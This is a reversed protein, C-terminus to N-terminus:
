HTHLSDPDTSKQYGASWPRTRSAPLKPNIRAPKFTVYAMPAILPFEFGWLALEALDSTMHHKNASTSLLHGM